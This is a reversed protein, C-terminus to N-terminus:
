RKLGVASIAILLDDAGVRHVIVLRTYWRVTVLIFALASLSLAPALAQWSINTPNEADTVSEPQPAKSSPEIERVPVLSMIHSM